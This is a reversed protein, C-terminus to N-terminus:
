QFVRLRKSAISARGALSALYGVYTFITPAPIEHISPVNGSSFFLPEVYRYSLFGAPYLLLFFLLGYVPAM